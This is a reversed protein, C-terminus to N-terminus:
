RWDPNCEPSGHPPFPLFVSVVLVVSEELDDDLVEPDLPEPGLSFSTDFATSSPPPLSLFFLSSLSVFCSISKISILNSFISASM